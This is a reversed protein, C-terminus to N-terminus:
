RREGRRREPPPAARAGPSAEPTPAFFDGPGLRRWAAMLLAGLALLGLGIVLPPAVGLWVEGTESSVEANVVFERVAVVLLGTLALGGALPALGDLVFGRVSRLLEHRRLAVCAFATLAYYVAILLSLALLTQALFDELLGNLAVYLVTAVAGVAITAVHPTRRGPHVRGLAHPVARRHAMSLLTRSAPLITTQTSALASLVVGLVVLKDLPSGLVATATTALIAEDEFGATARPGLYAIVAITTVLYTVVLLGTATVAARGASGPSGGTEETLNVSSEWGWYIFVGVLLGGVLFAELSPAAFPDLWGFTPVVSGGPAEGGVVAVLAAGSFALLALVQVAAMATQVRASLQTGAVTLATLAAIAAVALVTVAAKSDAAASWGVLELLYRAGVDALSGVVLVGTVVVAWGGIWGLRPGLARTVWSFTTGCDPDLRDLRGFAVAVLLMPVFAVLLAAPAVVGLALALPGLVAALSYAPATSAVGIVVAQGFGIAGPALGKPEHRTEGGRFPTPPDPSAAITV